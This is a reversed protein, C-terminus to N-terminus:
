VFPLLNMKALGLVREKCKFKKMIQDCQGAKKRVQRTVKVVGVRGVVGVSKKGRGMIKQQLKHESSGGHDSLRTAM